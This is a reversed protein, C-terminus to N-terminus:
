LNYRSSSVSAVLTQDVNEIWQGSEELCPWQNVEAANVIKEQSCIGPISGQAAPDPLLYTLWQGISDGM